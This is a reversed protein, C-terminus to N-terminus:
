HFGKGILLGVIVAIVILVWYVAPHIGAEKVMRIREENLYKLEKIRQAHVEEAKIAQQKLNNIQHEYNVQLQKQINDVLKAKSNQLEAITDNYISNLYQGLHSPTIFGKDAVQQLLTKDVEHGIATLFYSRLSLAAEAIAPKDFIGLNEGGGRAIVVIDAEKDFTQLASIIATESILSIREFHFKYFGIAEELQHKIDNEVISNNGIIIIVKIKEDGVIKAKIFSSVDRYGAKAKKQILKIAKLQDETVESDRQALLEMLNLQLVIKSSNAEVKKTLFATCEIVQNSILNARVIAPVILTICADSNEDKLQDYYYGGYNMGRGKVYIGKVLLVSKTLNSNLVNNFINAIASPSYVTSIRQEIPESTEAM